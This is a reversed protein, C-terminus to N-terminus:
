MRKDLDPSRDRRGPQSPSIAFWLQSLRSESLWPLCAPGHSLRIGHSNPRGWFYARHIQSLAAGAEFLFATNESINLSLGRPTREM